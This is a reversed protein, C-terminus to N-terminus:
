NTVRAIEHAFQRAFGKVQLNCFFIAEHLCRRIVRKGGFWVKLSSTVIVGQHSTLYRVRIPYVSM